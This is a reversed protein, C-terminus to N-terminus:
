WSTGWSNKVLWYDKGQYTGYGVALVGHDLRTRSGAPENYVGRHYFQFSLHGADIAVSIPGVTAVASQLDAESGKTIDTYGTDTAG